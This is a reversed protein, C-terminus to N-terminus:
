RIVGVKVRGIRSSTGEWFVRYNSTEVQDFGVLQM